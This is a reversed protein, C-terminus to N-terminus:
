NSSIVNTLYSEIRENMQKIDFHRMVTNYANKALSIRLKPNDYLKEICGALSISDEPEFALGNVGDLLIEKTGGIRTGVVVLGSAMAELFVRSFPEEWISPFLLVNYKRLFEPMQQRPIQPIFQVIEHLKKQIVMHKLQKEYDPHGSGLITLRLNIGPRAKIVHAIAEIASHVGKHHVLAGAYLFSLHNIDYNNDVISEPRNFQGLDIGPYIVQVDKLPVGAKLLGDRLSNSVCIVHDFELNVKANEKSIIALAIKGVLYKLSGMFFRHVPTQWYALHLDPQAPWNSALSYVVKKPLTHELYVLIKRSLNWMGWVFIVDPKFTDVFQKVVKLNKKEQFYRSSFFHLPSYHVMDAELYLVRHIHDDVSPSWSIGYISTLVLTEHGNKQLYNVVEQCRNEMGGITYPPYFNTIFLLKM